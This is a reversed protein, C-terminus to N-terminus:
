LNRDVLYTSYILASGAPNLKAIFLDVPGFGPLNGGPNLSAQIPNVTPFNGSSTHGTVYANGAGDVAIGRGGDQRTGGLFTSYVLSSGTPDLKTIFADHVGRRNSTQFAGPTSPYDSSNTPGTVYASGSADVAIGDGYEGGRGGIYTSYVMAGSGDLKTVFVENLSGTKITQYAGPTTPFDFSWTVGTAYANGSADVAIEGVGDSRGSGGLYTSYVVATGAPNLKTVFGDLAGNYPAGFVTGGGHVPQAPNATPFDNSSTGGAIYASGASDVALDSPFEFNTGGLYTSYVLTPDIVLPYARDHDGISFGVQGEGLLQYSGSVERSQGDIRQYIFPATEVLEGMDTQLVLAGDGRISMAEVGSYSLRISAPDSGPAVIFESKLRGETGRYVLDIGPYLERYAVAGYTPM